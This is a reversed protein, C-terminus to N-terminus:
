VSLRAVPANMRISSDVLWVTAPPMTDNLSPPDAHPTTAVSGIQLVPHAPRKLATKKGGCPAAILLCINFILM